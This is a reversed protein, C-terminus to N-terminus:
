IKELLIKIVAIHVNYATRFLATQSEKNEMKPNAGEKYIM